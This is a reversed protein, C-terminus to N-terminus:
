ALYKKYKPDTKSLEVIKMQADEYILNVAEVSTTTQLYEKYANSWSSSVMEVDTFDKEILDLECRSMPTAKNNSVHFLNHRLDEGINVPTYYKSSKRDVGASKLLKISLHTPVHSVAYFPEDTIYDCFVQILNENITSTAIRPDLGSLNIDKLKKESQEHDVAHQLECYKCGEGPCVVRSRVIKGNRVVPVFHIDYHVSEVSAFAFACEKLIYNNHVKITEHENLKLKLLVMKEEEFYFVWYALRQSLDSM